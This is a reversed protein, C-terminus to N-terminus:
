PAFQKMHETGWAPGGEGTEIDEVWCLDVSRYEPYKWDEHVRLWASPRWPTDDVALVTGEEGHTGDIGETTIRVKRGVWDAVKDIGSM